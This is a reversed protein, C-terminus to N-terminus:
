PKLAPPSVSKFEHPLGELGDILIGAWGSHIRDALVIHTEKTQANQDSVSQM